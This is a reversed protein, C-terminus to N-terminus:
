RSFIEKALSVEILDGGIGFIEFHYYVLHDICVYFYRLVIMSCGVFLIISVVDVLDKRICFYDEDIEEVCCLYFYRLIFHFLIIPLFLDM